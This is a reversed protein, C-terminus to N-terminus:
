TGIRAHRASPMMLLSLVQYPAGTGTDGRRTDFNKRCQECRITRQGMLLQLLPHVTSAAHVADGNIPYEFPQGAMIQGVTDSAIVAGPPKIGGAMGAIAIM